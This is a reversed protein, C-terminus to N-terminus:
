PRAIDLALQPPCGRAVLDELYHIDLNENAVAVALQESFHLRLAVEHKWRWVLADDDAADIDIAAAAYTTEM